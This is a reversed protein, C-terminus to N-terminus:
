PASSPNPCAPVFRCRSAPALLPETVRSPLPQDRRGARGGEEFAKRRPLPALVGAPCAEMEAATLEASTPRPADEGLSAVPAAEGIEVPKLDSLGLNHVASLPVYGAWTSVEKEGLAGDPYGDLYYAVDRALRYGPQREHPQLRALCRRAAANRNLAASEQAICASMAAVTADTDDPPGGLHTVRDLFFAYDVESPALDLRKWLADFDRLKEGDYEQSAYLRAYAARAVPSRGLAVLADEWVKRRHPDLWIACMFRAVPTDPECQDSKAGKLRLFRDLNAFEDGFAKEVLAPQSKWVMWVVWQIERGSGATAGRPGWTLYSCPDSDNYCVFRPSRPDAPHRRDRKSDQCFNWEPKDGFDTAEFSLILANARDQVSPLPQDGMAARWVAETIVGEAAPSGRPV